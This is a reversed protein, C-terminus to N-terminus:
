WSGVEQRRRAHLADVVERPTTRAGIESDKRGGHFDSGGTSLLGREDAARRWYAAVVEDHGVHDSEIGALGEVVLRDLLALDTGAERTALGPHALVAVGGARVILRVGAEPSLAAKPEYAPGGDALWLDFATAHDAVAGAEVLAAAVHPRGLPATGALAHVRDLAVDIGLAQLKAVMAAARRAREGRLRELEATMAPDDGDVWYALLHVGRDGLETSLELGPVLEIDHRECAEAAREWGATTDHDTAALGALGASAAMAANDEPSTTGDSFVTHTHLDFSV